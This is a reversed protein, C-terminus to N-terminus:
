VLFKFMGSLFGIAYSFHLTFVALPFNLAVKIGHKILVPISYFTLALFYFLPLMIGLFMNNLLIGAIILILMSLFFTFPVLQRLSIPIKHKKLFAIQWLGYSYYQKFLDTFNNRVYYFSKALPSLYVKGGAQRLRFCYEDDHNIIFFEDYYGVKDLVERRFLPFCVMEAYGEYDPFRHKANGVGIPSSMAIANAKGFNSEGISDIPGGVCWSEPHADIVKISNSVYNIDYETHADCIAIYKGKSARFGINVAPPKVKLINDYLKVRVDSQVIENLIVRTNDNSMGDVVLIEMEGSLNQQQLLSNISRQIYKEENYCCVIVSVLMNDRNNVIM